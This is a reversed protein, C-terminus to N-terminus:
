CDAVDTLSRRDECGFPLRESSELQAAVAAAEAVTHWTVAHGCRGCWLPSPIGVGHLKGGPEFVCTLTGVGCQALVIARLRASLPVLRPDSM